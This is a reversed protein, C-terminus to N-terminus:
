LYLIGQKERPNRITAYSWHINLYAYYPKSILPVQSSLVTKQGSQGRGGAPTKSNRAHSAIPSLCIPTAKGASYGSETMYLCSDPVGARKTVAPIDLKLTKGTWALTNTQVLFTIEGHRMRISAFHYNDVRGGMGQCLVYDMQGM